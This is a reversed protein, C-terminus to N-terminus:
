LGADEFTRHAWASLGLHCAQQEIWLQDLEPAQVKLVGLLENWLDDPEERSGKRVLEAEAQQLEKLALVSVDEPTLVPLPPTNEGLELRHARVLMAAEDLYQRPFAIQITFLSPLHYIVFSTRLALASEIDALRMYFTAPLLEYLLTADVNTLDALVNIQTLARQMGYISRALSGSLACTISMNELANLVPLFSSLLDITAFAPAIQRQESIQRLEIALAKGLLHEASSFLAEQETMEPHLTQCALSANLLITRSMSAVLQFRRSVGKQRLLTILIREVEPNTDISQTRM